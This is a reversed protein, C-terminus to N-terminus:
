KGTNVFQICDGQNTFITGNTRTFTQWGGNKCANANPPTSATIQFTKSGSSAQYNGGGSYSASATATGVFVNNTYTVTLSQSLGGVGTVTATCPTRPSGNYPVSAPCTVTVTTPAPTIVIAVSGSQANYDTDGAYSWNATGGPVNTFSSGLNLGSLTENNVGTCSGTAGHPAADYVGTYGSITCNANAKALAIDAPASTTSLYVDDGAKTASVKCTGTGSTATLQDGALTCSGSILTFSVAGSGSGGTTGLTQTSGYTQPSTFTVVLPSQGICPGGGQFGITGRGPTTEVDTDTGSCAVPAYEINASASGAIDPAGGPSVASGGYSFPIQAAYGPEMSNATTVSPSTTGWWNNKFNKTNTTGPAPLAGGSQRDVVGGYWNGAIHNNNFASNAASQVPVNTGGSADLFLIGVTWNNRVFNEVFVTNDTQNRFIVGTRNDDIINNHIFNGNSNNIDIGTRNGFLSSNRLEFSNALGQVAVGAFNLASDNWTAPTNGNRTISFGDVVVGAASIRITAGDGGAVGRVTTSAYGAGLLTIAKGVIVDENYTGAAVHVTGGTSVTNVAAQITLKEDGPGTGGNLDSGTTAVYCNTTCQITPEFDYTTDAGNIGITLNDANGVFGAWNSGAKLVIGVADPRIQATPWNALVQAWTCPSNQPCLGNSGSANTRSAWWRGNLANWHQWTNQPIGGGNGQYPEFVLRGQFGTNLDTTSYDITFQLAVALNNGADFSSRYTDYSLQTIQSLPVPNTVSQGIIQGDGAGVLSFGVSGVGAPPVAPGPVFTGTAPNAPVQDNLFFWGGMNASKVVVTAASAAATSAILMVAAALATGLQSKFMKRM